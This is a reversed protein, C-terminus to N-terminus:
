HVLHVFSKRVGYLSILSSDSQVAVVHENHLEATRITFEHEKRKVRLDAYSCMCFRCILGNSFCRRFGGIDHAALNDASISAVTSYFHISETKGDNRTITATIGHDQLEKLDNILPSLIAKYGHRQIARSKVVMALLINNLSSCFKSGGNGVVYYVCM